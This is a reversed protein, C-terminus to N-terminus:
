FLPQPLVGEHELLWSKTWGERGPEGGSFGGLGDASVVRHCPIILPIPNAGMISGIARAPVQTGSRHALEGYTVTEGFGVTHFLTLLVVQSSDGLGSLDLDVEFRRRRGAFYEGLQKLAREVHMPADGVGDGDVKDVPGPQWGCRRVGLPGALVQVRGVPTDLYSVAM